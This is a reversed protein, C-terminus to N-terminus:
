SQGQRKSILINRWEVIQDDTLSCLINGLAENVVTQSQQYWVEPPEDKTDEHLARLRNSAGVFIGDLTTKQENSLRLQKVVKPEGLVNVSELVSAVQSNSSRATGSIARPRPESAGFGLEGKLVWNMIGGGAGMAVVALAVTLLTKKVGDSSDGRDHSKKTREKDGEASIAAIRQLGVRKGQDSPQVHVVRARYWGSYLGVEVEDDAEIKYGSAIVIAVGGASEEALKCATTRSRHRLTADDCGPQAPYRYSMRLDRGVSPAAIRQRHQQAITEADFPQADLEATPSLSENMSM